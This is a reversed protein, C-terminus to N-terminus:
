HRKKYHDGCEVIFLEDEFFKYVIRNGRDIRVSRLGESTGKLLEAKAPPVGRPGSRQLEKILNNIRKLTQPTRQWAVYDSWAGSSWTLKM